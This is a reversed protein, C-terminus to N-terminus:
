TLDDVVVVSAHLPPPNPAHQTDVFVHLAQPWRDCFANCNAPENDYTAVVEGLSLLVGDVAPLDLTITDVDLELAEGIAAAFSDAIEALGRRLIEKARAISANGKELFDPPLIPHLRGLCLSFEWAMEQITLIFEELRRAEEPPCTPGRMAAIALRAKAPFLTHETRQWLPLSWMGDRLAAQMSELYKKFYKRFIVILILLLFERM